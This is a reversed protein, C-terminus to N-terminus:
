GSAATPTPWTRSCASAGRDPQQPRRRPGPLPQGAPRSRGPQDHAPFDAVALTGTADPEAAYQYGRLFFLRKSDPSFQWRAVDRAIERPPTLGIQATEVIRLREVPADPAQTSFALHQGDPSFAVQWMLAGRADYPRM